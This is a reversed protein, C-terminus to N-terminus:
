SLQVTSSCLLSSPHSSNGRQGWARSPLLGLTELVWPLLYSLDLAISMIQCHKMAVSNSMIIYLSDTAENLRESEPHPFRAVPFVLSPCFRIAGTKPPEQVLVRSLFLLGENAACLLFVAWVERHYAGDGLLTLNIFGRMKPLILLHLPSFEM